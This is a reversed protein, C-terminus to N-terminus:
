QLMSLDRMVSQPPIVEIFTTTRCKSIKVMISPNFQGLTEKLLEIASFYTRQHDSQDVPYASLSKNNNAGIWGYVVLSHPFVLDVGKFLSAYDDLNAVM